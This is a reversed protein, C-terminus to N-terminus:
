ASDTSARVVAGVILLFAASVFHLALWVEPAAVTIPFVPNFLVAIGALPPLFWWHRAQFAFWAVILALISVAYRVIEYGDTGTIAAGILLAVVALVAPILATRRRSTPYSASM